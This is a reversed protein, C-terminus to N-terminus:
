KSFDPMKWTDINAETLDEVESTMQAAMRRITEVKQKRSAVDNLFVADDAPRNKAVIAMADSVDMPKQISSFDPSTGMLAELIKGNAASKLADLVKARIGKSEHKDVATQVASSIESQNKDMIKKAEAEDNNRIDVERFFWSHQKGVPIFSAIAVSEAVVIKSILAAKKVVLSDDVIEYVADGNEDVSQMVLPHHSPRPHSMHVKDGTVGAKKDEAVLVEHKRWNRMDLAFRAVEPEFNAPLQSKLLKVTM